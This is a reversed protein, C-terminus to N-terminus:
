GKVEKLILASQSVGGFIRYVAGSPQANLGVLSVGDTNGIRVSYTVSSATAPSDLFEIISDGSNVSPVIDAAICTTGRFLAVAVNIASNSGFSIKSTVLIKNSASSPTIAQSLIEYGESVQPITDDPPIYATIGVVDTRANQVVQLVAGAAVLKGRVGPDLKVETVASDVIKATTVSGDAVGLQASIDASLKDATIQGDALERTTIAGAAVRLVPRGLDNLKANDVLELDGLVRGPTIEIQGSAM